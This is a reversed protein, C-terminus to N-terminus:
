NKQSKKQSNVKKTSPELGYFVEEAQGCSMESRKKIYIEKALIIITMIIFFDITLITKTASNLEAINIYSAKYSFWIYQVFANTVLSIIGYLIYKVKKGSYFYCFGLFFLVIFVQELMFINTFSIAYNILLYLISYPLIKKFERIRFVLFVMTYFNLLIVIWSTLYEFVKYTKIKVLNDVTIKYYPLGLSDLATNVIILFGMIVALWIVVKAVKENVGLWKLFEKMFLWTEM